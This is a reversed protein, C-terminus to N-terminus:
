SPCLREGPAVPFNQILFAGHPYLQLWAYYIAGTPTVDQETGIQEVTNSNDGDIFVEVSDDMWTTGNASEAAADDTMIIDDTVHVAFGLTFLGGVCSGVCGLLCKVLARRSERSM